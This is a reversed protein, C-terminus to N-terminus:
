KWFGEAGSNPTKAPTTTSQVAPTSSASAPHSKLLKPWANVLEDILKVFARGETAQRAKDAAYMSGWSTSRIAERETAEYTSYVYGTRTDLLLGSVTTVASVKRTPSLGLTVVTLPTSADTDFFATDFTYVFVLDTHLRAAAERLERDSELKAPLLLRNIAVVGSVQPLASIRDFQAQDEVERTMIVSYRGGSGYQGGNQQLFYNTYTPSQVRVAAISAPFPNTPKTEFGSQITTPTFSQLDAKAGPTIYSTACGSLTVVVACLALILISRM